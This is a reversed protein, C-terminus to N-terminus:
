LRVQGEVETPKKLHRWHAVVPVLREGKSESLRRQMAIYQQSKARQSAERLFTDIEEDTTAFWYGPTGSASIIFEGQNRLREIERRNERDPRGTMNVLQQRTVANNRGPKICNIVDM